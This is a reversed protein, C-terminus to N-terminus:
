REDFGTAGARSGTKKTKARVGNFKGGDAKQDM